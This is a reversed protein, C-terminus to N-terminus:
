FPVNRGILNSNNQKFYLRFLLFSWVRHTSENSYALPVFDYIDMTKRESWWCLFIELNRFFWLRVNNLFMQNFVFFNEILNQLQCTPLLNDVRIWWHFRHWILLTWKTHLLCINHYCLSPNSLLVCLSM